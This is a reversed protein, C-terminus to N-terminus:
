QRMYADNQRSSNLYLIQATIHSSSANLYHIVFTTTWLYLLRTAHRLLLWSANHIHLMISIRRQASQLWTCPIPVRCVPYTYPDHELSSPRRTCFFCGQRFKGTSILYDHSSTKKVSRLFRGHKLAVTMVLSIIIIAIDMDIYINLAIDMEIYINLPFLVDNDRTRSKQNPNSPMQAKVITIPIKTKSLTWSSTITTKHFHKQTDIKYQWWILDHNWM